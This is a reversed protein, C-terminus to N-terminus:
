PLGSLVRADEPERLPAPNSRRLLRSAINTPSGTVRFIVFVFRLSRRPSSPGPHEGARRSECLMGNPCAERGAM